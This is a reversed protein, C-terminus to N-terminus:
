RGITKYHRQVLYCRTIVEKKILKKSKEFPVDELAAKRTFKTQGSQWWVGDKEVEWHYTVEKHEYFKSLM